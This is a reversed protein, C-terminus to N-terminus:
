LRGKNEMLFDFFDRDIWRGIGIYVRDYGQVVDDSIGLYRVTKGKEEVERFEIQDPKVDFSKTGIGGRYVTINFNREIPNYIIKKFFRKRIRGAMRIGLLCVAPGFLMGILFKDKNWKLREIVLAKAEEGKEEQKKYYKELKESNEEYENYSAGAILIATVIIQTTILGFFFNILGSNEYIPFPNEETFDYKKNLDEFFIKYRKEFEDLNEKKIKTEENSFFHKIKMSSIISNRQYYNPLFSGRSLKLNLNKINKLIM